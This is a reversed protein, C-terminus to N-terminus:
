TTPYVVVPLIMFVVAAAVVLKENTREYRAENALVRNLRAWTMMPYALLIALPVIESVWRLSPVSYGLHTAAMDFPIVLAFVLLVLQWHKVKLIDIRSTKTM